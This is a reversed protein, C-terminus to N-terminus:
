RRRLWWWLALGAIVLAAIVGIVIGAIAGGSLGRKCPLAADCPRGNPVSYSGTVQVYYPDGAGAALQYAALAPLNANYDLAVENQVWDDRWSWWLDNPRPGGPVAGYLTEKNAAPERLNSEDTLGSGRVVHPAAPSNPHMGVIYPVNMPNKGMLYDLQTGAFQRYKNARDTSSALPAYRLLLAAFAMAPNLSAQDSDGEWFLLGARSMYTRGGDGSISREIWGEVEAQWGTLNADLGAGAALGPRAAALEAFLVYAAPIRSDWNWVAGSKSLTFNIYHGYAEAYYASNNTAAALALAATCLDDGFSSPTYAGGVAKVSDTFSAQENEKAVRYLTEGHKLLAAAYSANALPAPGWAEGSTNWQTGQYALSGMAFAGATSAWADTGPHSANIAYCPRNRPLGADPGWYAQGGDHSSSGVQVYLTDDSPHAKMLWDYGWRLTSDMYATQKAAEFGPGYSMASWSLAWMTLGM